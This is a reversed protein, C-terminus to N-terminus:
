TTSSPPHAYVPGRSACPTWSSTRCATACCGEAWSCCRHSGLLVPRVSSPSRFCLRHEAVRRSVRTIQTRGLEGRVKVLWERLADNPARMLELMRASNWRTLFAPMATKADVTCKKLLKKVEAHTTVCWPFISRFTACPHCCVSPVLRRLARCESSYAPLINAYNSVPSVFEGPGVRSLMNSLSEKMRSADRETVGDRLEGFERHFLSTRSSDRTRRAFSLFFSTFPAYRGLFDEMDSQMVELLKMTYAKGGCVSSFSTFIMHCTIHQEEDGGGARGRSPSAAAPAPRKEETKQKKRSAPTTASRKRKDDDGDEAGRTEVRMVAVDVTGDGMDFVLVNGKFNDYKGQPSVLRSRTQLSATSSRECWVVGRERM